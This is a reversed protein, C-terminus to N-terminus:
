VPNNLCKTISFRRGPTQAQPGADYEDVSGVCWLGFRELLALADYDRLQRAEMTILLSSVVDVPQGTHDRLVFCFTPPIFSRVGNDSVQVPEVLPVTM